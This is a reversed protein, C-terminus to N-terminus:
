HRGSKPLFTVDPQSPPQQHMNVFPADGVKQRTLMLADPVTAICQPAICRHLLHLTCQWVDVITASHYMASGKLAITWRVALWCWHTQCCDAAASSPSSKWLFWLYPAPLHFQCVIEIIAAFCFPRNSPRWQINAWNLCAQEYSWIM